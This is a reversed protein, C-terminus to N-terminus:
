NSCFSTLKYFLFLIKVSRESTSSFCRIFVYIKPVLCDGNLTLICWFNVGESEKRPKKKRQKQQFGPQENNFDLGKIGFLPVEPTSRKVM